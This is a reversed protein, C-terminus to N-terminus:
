AVCLLVIMLWVSLGLVILSPLNRVVTLFNDTGSPRPPHIPAVFRWSQSARPHFGNGGSSPLLDRSSM